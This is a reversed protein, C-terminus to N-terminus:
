VKEKIKEDRNLDNELGRPNGVIGEPDYAFGLIDFCLVLVGSIKEEKGAQFVDPSSKCTFM